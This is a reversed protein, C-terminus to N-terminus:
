NLFMIYDNNELAFITLKKILSNTIVLGHIWLVTPKKYLRGLIASIVGSIIWQAHIIDAKRSVWLSKIFYMLIFIPFQLKAIPNNHVNEAIGGHYAIRQFRKPIFYRFRHIKIGDIIEFDKSNERDHPVVVDIDIGNEILKKMYCHNFSYDGEYRLFSTVLFCIKM